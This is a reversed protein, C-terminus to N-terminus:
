TPSNWFDAWFHHMEGLRAGQVKNAVNQVFGLNLNTQRDLPPDLLQSHSWWSWRSKTKEPYPVRLMETKIFGYFSILSSQASGVM